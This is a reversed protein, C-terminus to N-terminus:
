ITTLKNQVLRGIIERLRFAEKEMDDRLNINQAVHDYFVILKRDGNGAPVLEIGIQSTVQGTKDSPGTENTEKLYKVLYSKLDKLRFEAHSYQDNHQDIVLLKKNVEDLAVLQHVLHWHRSINIRIEGQISHLYELFGKERKKKQRRQHRTLIFGVIVAPLLLLTIILLDSM